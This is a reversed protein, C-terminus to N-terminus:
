RSPAFLYLPSTALEVDAEMLPEKEAQALHTLPSVADCVARECLLEAQPLANLTDALRATNWTGDYGTTALEPLYFHLTPVLESPVFLTRGAAGSRLRGLLATRPERADRQLIAEHRYRVAMFVLSAMLVVSAAAGARRGRRWVEGFAVGTVVAAAALLADLYYTYPLTVVLTACGFMWTFAIYPLAAHRAALRRWYITLLVLSVLPIVFEEPYTRIKFSWLAAPGIPAFTKRVAAMYALYLYGRLAGLQIVGKPWVVLVGALFSLVGRGLLGPLPRWGDPLAVILVVLIVAGVLIFSTEVTSFAIGLAATALYWYKKEKTRCFLALPLLTLSATLGFMVHQTIMTAAALGTRNLLFTLGAAFAAAVSYEPMAIRFSVFLLLATLGHIILGSARYDAARTCGMSQCLALWYAYVPGHYHRYFTIDGTSRIEKSKSSNKTRDRVMSLGELVFDITSISPRDLYNNLFGRTGAYMYDAEDYFFPRDSAVKWFVGGVLLAILALAIFGARSM